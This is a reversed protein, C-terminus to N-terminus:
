SRNGEIFSTISETFNLYLAPLTHRFSLHILCAIVNLFHISVAHAISFLLERSAQGTLVKKLADSTLPFHPGGSLAEGLRLFPVM